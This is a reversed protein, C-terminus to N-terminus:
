IEKKPPPEPMAMWHTVAYCITEEFTEEFFVDEDADYWLVSPAKAGVIMVLYEDSKSPRQEQADIWQTFVEAAPAERVIRRALNAYMWNPSIKELWAEADILKRSREM